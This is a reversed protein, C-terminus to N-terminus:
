LRADIVPNEIGLLLATQRARLLPSVFARAYSFNRPVRLRAMEATGEDSLPVDTKGQIRGQANWATPGHRILGLRM